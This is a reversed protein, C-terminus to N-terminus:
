SPPVVLAVSKGSSLSDKVKGKVQRSHDIRQDSYEQVTPSLM